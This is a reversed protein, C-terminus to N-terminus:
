GHGPEKQTATLIQFEQVEATEPYDESVPHDPRARLGLLFALNRLLHWLTFLTMLVLGIFLAAEYSFTPLYLTPTEKWVRLAYAFYKWAWWCMWISVVLSILDALTTLAARARDTKLFIELVNARIQTDERSANVSGLMYLWITPIVAVEELGMVPLEFVYRTIVQVFQFLAVLSILATLVFRFLREM